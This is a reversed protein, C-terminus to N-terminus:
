PPKVRPKGKKDKKLTYIRSTDPREREREEREKRLLPMNIANRHLYRNERAYIYTNIFTAHISIHTRAIYARLMNQIYKAHICASM